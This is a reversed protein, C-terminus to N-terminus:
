KDDRTRSKRFDESKGSFDKAKKVAEDADARQAPFLTFIATHRNRMTWPVVNESFFDFGPKDYMPAKLSLTGILTTYGEKVIRIQHNGYYTFDLTVPTNGVLKGDLFVEADTPESEIIVTRQVCGSLLALAVLLTAAIARFMM